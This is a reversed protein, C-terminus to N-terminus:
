RDTILPLAMAKVAEVWYSASPADNTDQFVYANGNSSNTAQDIAIDDKCRALQRKSRWVIVWCTQRVIALGSLNVAHAGIPSVSMNGMEVPLIDDGFLLSILLVM